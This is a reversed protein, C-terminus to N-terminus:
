NKARVASRRRQFGALTLGAVLVLVASGAIPSELFWAVPTLVIRVAVALAPHKAVQDAIPPSMTYYLDVLAAGPASKLLVADRFERFVDLKGDFPTGYSATAIFCPSIGGFNGGFGGGGGGGTPSNIYRFGDPLVDFLGSSGNQVTVDLYGTTPIGGVPFGVTISTPTWAQVPMQTGGFSVSPDDFGTGTITVPFDTDEGESPNVGTISPATGGSGSTITFNSFFGFKGTTSNTVKLSASGDNDPDVITGGPLTAIINTNTANVVTLATGDLSVTPSTGFNVGTISMTLGGAPTEKSLQFPVVNTIVVDNGQVTGQVATVNSTQLAKNVSSRVWNFGSNDVEPYQKYYPEAQFFTILGIARYGWPFESFVDFEGVRAAPPPPFTDPDPETPTNPGVSVLGLSFDDGVTINESTSIVVFFEPGQNPDTSVTGFSDPVWQRHRTQQATSTPIGDTGPTSFVFMVQTDPEGAQGIQFPAYDLEVPIDGADFVGNANNANFDNDRYIKMGSQEHDIDLPLLDDLINFGGDHDTDYIEVILQELFTPDRVIKWAGTAPTGTANAAADLFLKTADNGTIRFAQYNKDILFYNTFAGATWGAGGVTFVAPTGAGNNGSAAIGTSDGRNTSLDIGMVAVDGSNKVITQGSGTLDVLKCGVNAEIMDYGFDYSLWPTAPKYAANVPGYYPEVGEEPQSKQYISQSIPTQPLLQIGATRLSVAREPLTSPVVARFQEFRKLKDSTRVVIFLDDGPHGAPGIAKTSRAAREADQDITMPETSWYSKGSSSIAAKAAKTDGSESNSDAKADSEGIEAQDSVAAVSKAAPAPFHGGPADITPLIWPQTPRLTLVWAKDATTVVGDGSMDDAVGDGTLDVYEPVTKWALNVLQVPTDLELEDITTISGGFVGNGSTDEVLMVGSSTATGSEDLPLLDETTFDPGWFAVTLQQLKIQTLANVTTDDAGVLNIGIMATPRSQTEIHQKLYRAARDALPWQSERPYEGAQLVAPWTSYDPLTPQTPPVPLFASRPGFPPLDSDPVFFSVTEYPYQFNNFLHDDAAPNGNIWTWWSVVGVSHFDQFTSATLGFPDLWDSFFTSFGGQGFSMGVGYQVDTIRSYLNNTEYTIVLDHIEAGSGSPKANTANLTRQPWWPESVGWRSDAQWADSLYIGEVIFSDEPIQSDIYIGGDLYGTNPNFRRPEIFARFDAGITMGIGDGNLGQQDQYGGDPRVVVFFDNVFDTPREEDDKNGDPVAEVWGGEAPPPPDDWDPQRRGGYSLRLRIKWWPDGGGPPFPIYEWQPLGPVREDPLEAFGGLGLGEPYMPYDKGAYSVGGGALQEPQDFTGDGDTDHFIQIGNFGFDRRISTDPDDGGGGYSDIMDTLTELGQIPNFGGNGAPGNPNAGIDTLIINVERLTPGTPAEWPGVLGLPGSQRVTHVGHLNLGIVPTWQDVPFLRRIELFEGTVLDFATSLADYRPRRYEALPTYMSRPYAWSNGIRGDEWASTNGINTIDWVGFSSSYATEPDLKDPDDAYFDPSYSDVPKGEQNLPFEFDPAPTVMRAMTHDYALTISNRWTATTRVALIYTIAEDALTTDFSFDSLALDYEFTGPDNDISGAAYVLNGYVDFVLPVGSYPGGARGLVLQDDKDLVGRDDVEGGEAFFALQYIDSAQFVDRINYSRDGAKPDHKLKFVLQELIRPAYADASAYTMEIRILPAWENLPLLGSEDPLLDEATYSAADIQAMATPTLASLLALATLIPLIRNGASTMKM